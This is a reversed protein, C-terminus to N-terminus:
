EVIRIDDAMCQNTITTEKKWNTWVNLNLSGVVEVTDLVCVDSAWTPDTKFKIIDLNDCKIKVTDNGKGMVKPNDDVFVDKILFKAPRFGEGTLYDFKKIELVLDNSIERSQLEMDYELVPEFTENALEINISEKLRNLHFNKLGIGGAYPHGVAYSIFKFKKLFKNMDFDGYSRFSGAIIGGHNRAVIVPRKYEQAIKTAVLGNFSKSEEDHTVIIVKDDENIQKRYEEFLKQETVRRQENLVTMEAVLSLCRKYDDCILLEIALAINNLRAVGNILPAIKFGITQSDISAKDIKNHELIAKIGSNQINEMGTKIIYRNELIDCRMMDAYMGVAVIDIYDDVIGLGIIDDIVQLTKYVVGVGSISKNPYKCNPMQPNVILAHPNENEYMHHDLIIISIGKESIERCADYDNTSSDLVIILDTGDEIKSTQNGIGHGADREHYLIYINDTLHKLYRYMLATSSVGDVDIDCSIGIKEGSKVADIIKSAALEINNLLYPNHLNDKSPNLFEKHNKIGRIKLLKTIISDKKSYSILPEKQIWKM